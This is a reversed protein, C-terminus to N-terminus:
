QRDTQLSRVKDVLLGKMAYAGSWADMRDLEFGVQCANGTPLGREIHSAFLDTVGRLGLENALLRVRTLSDRLSRRAEAIRRDHDTADLRNYHLYGFNVLLGQADSYSSWVSEILVELEYLKLARAKKNSVRGRVENVVM